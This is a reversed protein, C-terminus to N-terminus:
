VTLDLSGNNRTWRTPPNRDTPEAESSLRNANMQAFRSNAENWRSGSGFGGNQTLNSGGADSGASDSGVQVEFAEIQMGQEALRDRLTQVNSLLADRALSNEVELKAFMQGSEIRLTMQLSGLEPPHLRLKVQGGGDGLQELGRLVRQVLKVQQYPSVSSAHGGRPTESRATSNSVTPSGSTSQIGAINPLNATQSVTNTKNSLVGPGAIATPNSTASGVDSSQRIDTVTPTNPDMSGLTSANSSDFDSSTTISFPQTLDTSTNSVVQTAPSVLNENERESSGEESVDNSGNTREALRTARRNRALMDSAPKADQESNARSESADFSRKSQKGPNSEIGAVPTLESAIESASKSNATATDNQTRRHDIRNGLPRKSSLASEATNQNSLTAAPTSITNTSKRAAVSSEDGLEPHNAKESVLSETPQTLQLAAKDDNSTALHNGNQVDADQNGSDQLPDIAVRKPDADTSGSDAPNPANPVPLVGVYDLTLSDQHDRELDDQEDLEGVTSDDDVDHVSPNRSPQDSGIPESANDAPRIPDNDLFGISLLEDFFSLKDLEHADSASRRLYSPQTPDSNSVRSVSTDPSM